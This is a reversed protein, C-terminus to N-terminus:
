ASSPMRSEGSHSSNLRTSKRDAGGRHQLALEPDAEGLGASEHVQEFRAAHDPRGFARLGALHKNLRLVQRLHEGEDSAFGAREFGGGRLLGFEAFLEGM